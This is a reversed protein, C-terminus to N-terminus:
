VRSFNYLELLGVLARGILKLFHPMGRCVDDLHWRQSKVHCLNFSLQLEFMRRSISSHIYLSYFCNSNLWLSLVRYYTCVQGATVKKCSSNSMQQVSPRHDARWRAAISQTPGSASSTTLWVM